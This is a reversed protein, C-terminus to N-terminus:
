GWLSGEGRRGAGVGEGSTKRATIRGAELTSSAVPQPPLLFRGKECSVTKRDRRRLSSVWGVVFDPTEGDGVGSLCVKHLDGLVKSWTSPARPLEM